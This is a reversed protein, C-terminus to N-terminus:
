IILLDARVKGGVKLKFEDASHRNEATTGPPNRYKLVILRFVRRKMTGVRLM